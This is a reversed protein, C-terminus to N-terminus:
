NSSNQHFLSSLCFLSFPKLTTASTNICLHAGLNFQLFMQLQQPVPSLATTRMEETWIDTHWCYINSLALIRIISFLVAYVSIVTYILMTHIHTHTLIFTAQLSLCKSHDTLSSFRLMFATWEVRLVIYPIVIASYVLRFFDGLLTIVELSGNV